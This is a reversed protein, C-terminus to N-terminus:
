ITSTEFKINYKDRIQTTSDDLNYPPLLTISVSDVAFESLDRQKIIESLNESYYDSDFLNFFSFRLQIM